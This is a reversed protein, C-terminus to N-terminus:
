GSITWWLLPLNAAKHNEFEKILHNVRAIDDSASSKAKMVEQWSGMNDTKWIDDRFRGSCRVTGPRFSMVKPESYRNLKKRASLAKRLEINFKGQKPTEHMHISFLGHDKKRHIVKKILCLIAM